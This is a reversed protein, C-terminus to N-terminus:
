DVNHQLNVNVLFIDEYGVSTLTTTGFTIGNTNFSGTVYVNGSKDTAVSNSQGASAGKAWLFAGSPRYKALFVGGYNSGSQSNNLTTTGLKITPGSFDGCVYLNSKKDTAVSNGVDDGTGGGTAGKLWWCNQGNVTIVMLASLIILYVKKM